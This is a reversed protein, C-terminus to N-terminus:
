HLWTEVTGTAPDLRRVAHPTLLYLRGDAGPCFSVVDALRAKGRPGDAYPGHVQAASRWWYRLQSGTSMTVLGADSYSGTNFALPAGDPALGIADLRGTPDFRAGHGARLLLEARDGDVRHVKTYVVDPGSGERAARSVGLLLPRGQADLALGHYGVSRHGTRAETELDDCRGGRVTAVTGSPEIRRLACNPPTRGDRHDDEAVWVTGDRPDVAISLNGSFLAERGPGDQRGTATRRGYPNGCYSPGGGAVQEVQGDTRLRVITRQGASVVLVAGSPEVALGTVGDEPLRAQSAHVGCNRLGDDARRVTNVWLPTVRGDAEVRWLGRGNEVYDRGPGRQPSPEWRRTSAAVVLGGQPHCAMAAARDVFRRDAPVHPNAVVILAREPLYRGELEPPTSTRLDVTRPADALRAELGQVPPGAVAVVPAAASLVVSPSTSAVGAPPAQDKPPSPAPVPQSGRRTADRLAEEMSRRLLDSVSQAPAPTTGALAVAALVWCTARALAWPTVRARSPERLPTRAPAPVSAVTPLRM